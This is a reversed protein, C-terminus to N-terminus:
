GGSQKQDQSAVQKLRLHLLCHSMYKETMWIQALLKLFLQFFWCVWWFIRWVNLLSILVFLKCWTCYWTLREWCKKLSFYWDTVVVYCHMVIKQITVVRCCLFFMTTFVSLMIFAGCLESSVSMLGFLLLNFYRIEAIQVNRCSVSPVLAVSFSLM